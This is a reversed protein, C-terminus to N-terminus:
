QICDKLKLARYLLVNNATIWSFSYVSNYKMYIHVMLIKEKRVKCITSCM